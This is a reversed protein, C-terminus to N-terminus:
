LRPTIGRQQFLARLIPGHQGGYLERDAAILNAAAQAYSFGDPVLKRWALALLPALVDRADLLAERFEPAAGEYHRPFEAQVHELTTWTPRHRAAALDPVVKRDMLNCQYIAVLVDYVAGSFPLSYGHTDYDFWAPDMLEMTEHNFLKRAERERPDDPKRYEGIRSLVNASHLRGKEEDLVHKVIDDVHLSTVVSALDACAEEHARYEITKKDEVPNGVVSKFILHGAEHTVTDFNDSYAETNDPYDTFGFELFGEGSWANGSAVRPIVELYDYTDAFYWRVPGGLHHAWVDLAYRISAFTAAASFQRTGPHVHDFHGDRPALPEYAPGEFPPKWRTNWTRDDRYPEKDKADIVRVARDSPGAAITGPPSNVYLPRPQKSARSPPLVYVSFRTGGQKDVRFRSRREM